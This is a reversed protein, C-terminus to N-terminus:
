AGQELVVHKLEYEIPSFYDHTFHRRESNYFNDIYDVVQAGALEPTLEPDDLALESKLKIFVSEAVANDWCDERRSMSCVIGSANLAAQYDDSAYPSGQDTHHLFGVHLTRCKIAADLAALALQTDNHRSLEYGVV